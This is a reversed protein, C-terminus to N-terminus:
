SGAAKKFPLAVMGLVGTAATTTTWVRLIPVTMIVGAQTNTFTATTGKITTVKITGGSGTYFGAFPGAPDNVSDSATVAIADDYTIALINSM